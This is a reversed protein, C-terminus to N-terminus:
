LSTKMVSVFWVFIRWNQCFIGLSNVRSLNANVTEMLSPRVLLSTGRGYYWTVLSFSHFSRQTKTTNCYKSFGQAKILYGASHVVLHPLPRVMQFTIPPTFYLFLEHLPFNLPFFELVAFLWSFFDM